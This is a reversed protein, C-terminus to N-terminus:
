LQAYNREVYIKIATVMVFNPLFCVAAFCCLLMAQCTHAGCLVYALM